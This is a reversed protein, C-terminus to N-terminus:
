RSTPKPQRVASPAKPAPPTAQRPQGAPIHHYGRGGPVVTSRITATSAQSAGPAPPTVTRYSGAPHHQQRYTPAPNVKAPRSPAAPLGRRATSPAVLSRSTSPQSAAVSRPSASVTGKGPGAPQPGAALAKRHEAEKRQKAVAGATLAAATVPHARGAVAAGTKLVGSSPGKPGKGDKSGKASKLEGLNLVEDSPAPQATLMRPRQGAEPPPGQQPGPMPTPPGPQPSPQQEPQGPAGRLLRWRNGKGDKGKGGKGGKGTTKFAAMSPTVGFQSMVSFLVFTLLLISATKFLLDRDSTLITSVGAVLFGFFAFAGIVARWVGRVVLMGVKTAAGHLKPFVAPIAVAPYVGIAVRTIVSGLVMLVLCIMLFWLPALTAILGGFATTGHGRTDMGSTVRYTQPHQEQLEKMIDKYQGQREEIKGQASSPDKAIEAQEERTFVSAKWLRAAFKDAAPKDGAFMAQEWTPYLVHETMVAGVIDAGDRGAKDAVVEGASQFAMSIGKDVTGGVGVTYFICMTAATTIVLMKGIWTSTKALKGKRVYTVTVYLCAALSALGSFLLFLRGGVTSLLTQQMPDWVSGFTGDTVVRTLRVALATAVGAVNLWMNAAAIDRDFSVPQCVDMINPTEFVGFTLGAYGYRDYMTAPSGATFPDGAVPAKPGPDLSAAVGSTPDAPVPPNLCDRGTPIGPMSAAASVAGAVSVVLLILAVALSAFLRRRPMARVVALALRARNM